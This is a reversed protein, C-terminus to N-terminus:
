FEPERGRDGGDRPRAKQIAKGTQRRDGGIIQGFARMLNGGDAHHDSRENHCEREKFETWSKGPKIERGPIENQAAQERSKKATEGAILPCEARGEQDLRSHRFFSENSGADYRRNDDVGRTQRYPREM